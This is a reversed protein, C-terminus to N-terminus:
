HDVFFLLLNMKLFEIQKQPPNTATKKRKVGSSFDYILSHNRTIAEHEKKKNKLANEGWIRIKENKNRNMDEKNIDM